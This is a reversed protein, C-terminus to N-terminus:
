LSATGSSGTLAAVTDRGKRVAEIQLNLEAIGNATDHRDAGEEKWRQLKYRIDEKLVYILEDATNRYNRDDSM